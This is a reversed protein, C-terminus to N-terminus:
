FSSIRCLYPLSLYLAGAGIALTLPFGIAFINLQPAARTMVGIALNTVLLAALVPLSLMVGARFIVAGYDAMLKLGGSGPPAPGIPLQAFSDFLAGLVVIHGNFALFVLLMLLGMFSSVVTVSAAHLPDYFSAFGLGMQMGSLHGAMEMASFMLRVTFGLSVGILLEKLAILVGSPSVVAVHPLPQLAPAVLLALLISLGIRVRVPIARNSFFPDAIMMGFIRLFPWWFLALWVDVQGQTFSLM